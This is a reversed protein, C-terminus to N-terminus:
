GGGGGHAVIFSTFLNRWRGMGFEELGAALWPAHRGNWVRVRRRRQLKDPRLPVGAALADAVGRQLDGLERQDADPVHLVDGQLVM